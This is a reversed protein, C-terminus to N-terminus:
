DWRILLICNEVGDAGFCKIIVVLVEVIGMMSAVREQLDETKLFVEGFSDLIFLRSEDTVLLKHYKYYNSLERYWFSRLNGRLPTGPDNKCKEM